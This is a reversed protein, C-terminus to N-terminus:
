GEGRGSLRAHGRHEGRRRRAGAPAARHRLHDDGVRGPHRRPAGAPGSRGARHAGHPPRPLGAGGGACGGGSARAGPLGRGAGAGRGARAVAPLRARRGSVRGGSHHGGGRADPRGRVAGPRAALPLVPPRRFPGPHAGGGPGGADTAVRDGEGLPRDAGGCSGLLPCDLADALARACGSHDAHDHTVLVAAERAGGVAERLARLHGADDPGPDVVAVRDRGVIHTRTGDLTFPGPNPALVVRPRIM